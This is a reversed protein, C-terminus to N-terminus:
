FGGLTQRQVEARPVLLGAGGFTTGGRRGRTARRRRRETSTGLKISVSGPDQDPRLSEPPPKLDIATTPSEASTLPELLSGFSTALEDASPFSPIPPQLLKQLNAPIRGLEEFGKLPITFVDELIDKQFEFARKGAREIERGIKKIFSM